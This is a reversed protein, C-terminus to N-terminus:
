RAPSEKFDVINPLIVPKTLLFTPAQPLQLVFDHLTYPLSLSGWPMVIKKGM